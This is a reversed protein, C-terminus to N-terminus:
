QQPEPQSEAQPESQPEPQPEPQPEETPATPGGQRAARVRKAKAARPVVNIDTTTLQDATIVAGATQPTSTVNLVYSGPTMADIHYMGDSDTTPYYMALGAEGGLSTAVLIQAGALPRGGATVRGRLKGTGQPPLSIDHQTVEGSKVEAIQFTKRGDYLLEMSIKGVPLKDFSYKGEADSMTNVFGISRKSVSLRANAIPKGNSDRAVGAIGGGPSMVLRVPSVSECSGITLETTSVANKGDYGRVVIMGTPVQDLTFTGDDGSYVDDTADVSTDDNAGQSVFSEANVIVGPVPSGNEDVAVGALSCGKSLRIEVTETQGVAVKVRRSFTPAYGTATARVTVMWGPVDPIQFAGDADHFTRSFVPPPTVVDSPTPSLLDIAFDRVPAGDEDLVRGVIAGARQLILSIPQGTAASAAAPSYGPMAANVLYMGDPVELSFQGNKDSQSSKATSLRNGAVEFTSASISAGELAHGEIDYVVGTLTPSAEEAKPAQEPKAPRWLSRNAYAPAARHSADRRAKAPGPEAKFRLAWGVIGASIAIVGLILGWLLAKKQRVKLTTKQM